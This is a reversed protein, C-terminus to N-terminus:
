IPEMETASNSILLGARPVRSLAQKLQWCGVRALFSLCAAQAGGLLAGRGDFVAGVGPTPLAATQSGNAARRTGFVGRQIETDENTSSSRQALYKGLYSQAKSPDNTPAPWHRLLHNCLTHYMGLINTNTHTSVLLVWNWFAFFSVEFKTCNPVVLFWVWYGM